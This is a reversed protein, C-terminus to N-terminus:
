QTRVGFFEQFFFMTKLMEQGHHLVSRRFTPIQIGMLLEAIFERREQGFIIFVLMKQGIASDDPLFKGVNRLSRREGGHEEVRGGFRLYMEIVGSPTVDQLVPIRM